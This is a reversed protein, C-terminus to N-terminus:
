YGTSIDIWTTKTFWDPKSLGGISRFGGTEPQPAAFTRLLGKQSFLMPEIPETSVILKLLDKESPIGAPLYFYDEVLRLGEKGNPVPQSDSFLTSIGYQPSLYVLCMYLAQESHNSATFRFYIREGIFQLTVAESETDHWDNGEKLYMKFDVQHQPLTTRRNQMSAIRHWHAVREVVQILYQLSPADTGQVGHVFTDSLADYLALRGSPEVRIEIDAGSQNPTLHISAAAKQALATAITAAMAEDACYLFLPRLPMTKLEGWYTQTPQPPMAEGQIPSRTVGLDTIEGEAVLTGGSPADYIAVPICEGMDACLGQGAGIEILWNPQQYVPFRRKGVTPLTRGLFGAQPDFGSLAAGQPNQRRTAARINACIGTYLDGYSLLGGNQRLAALFAHTFLGGKELTEWALETKDCASLLMHKSFPVVLSGTQSLQQAYTGMLYSELPRPEKTGPTFRPLWGEEEGRTLSGSHCSDSVLAVHPCKEGIESLLLAIEKDALDFNGPLRSDYLVWGEEKRDTVFAHFAEAAINQSGHGAYYILIADEPGAKSLHERFGDIVQQRTAGGDLLVRINQEDPIQDRYYELLFTKVAAVDSHCGALPRVGSNPHYTNLGILLAHLSM